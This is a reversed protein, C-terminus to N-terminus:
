SAQFKSQLSPEAQQLGGLHQPRPKTGDWPEYTKLNKNLKKHIDRRTHICLAWGGLRFPANSEGTHTLTTFWWTLAPSLAHHRQWASVCSASM